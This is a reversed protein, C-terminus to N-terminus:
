KHKGANKRHYVVDVLALVICVTISISDYPLMRLVLEKSTDDLVVASAFANYTLVVALLGFVVSSYIRHYLSHAKATRAMVIVSPLLTLCVAVLSSLPPREIVVGAQAILPTVDATWLKALVTGATLGLAPMGMHRRSVFFGVAIIAFYIGLVILFTM